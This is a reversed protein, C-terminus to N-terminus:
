NKLLIVYTLPLFLVFHNHYLSLTFISKIHSLVHVLMVFSLSDFYFFNYILETFVTFGIAPFTCPFQFLLKSLPFPFVM